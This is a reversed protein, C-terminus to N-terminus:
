SSLGLLVVVTWDDPEDAILAGLAVDDVAPTTGIAEVISLSLGEVNCDTSDIAIWVSSVAGVDGRTTGADLGGFLGGADVGAGAGIGSGVAVGVGVRLVEEM